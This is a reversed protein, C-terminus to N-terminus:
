MCTCVMSSSLLAGMMHLVDLQLDLWAEKGEGTVIDDWRHNFVTVFIDPVESSVAIIKDAAFM